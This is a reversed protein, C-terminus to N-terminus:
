FEWFSRVQVNIEKTRNLDNSSRQIAERIWFAQRPLSESLDLSRDPSRSLRHRISFVWSTLKAWTEYVEVSSNFTQLNRLGDCTLPTSVSVNKRLWCKDICMWSFETKPYRPSNPLITVLTLYENQISIKVMAYCQLSRYFRFIAVTEGARPKM